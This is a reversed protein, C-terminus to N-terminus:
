TTTASCRRCTARASSARSSRTPTPTGGARAARATWSRCASRRRRDSRRAAHQVDAIKEDSVNPIAGIDAYYAKGTSDAAITNVWPIGLYRKEIEHLEDVSQAQNTRLFHNLYRFNGANVDGLAFATVPTWPFIPLGLIGTLVPGYETDYLTREQPQLAGDVLSM